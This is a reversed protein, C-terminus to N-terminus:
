RYLQVVPILEHVTTGVTNRQGSHWESSSSVSSELLSSRLGVQMSSRTANSSICRYAFVLQPLKPTYTSGENLFYSCSQDAKAELFWRGRPLVRHNHLSFLHVGWRASPSLFQTQLHLRLALLPFGLWRCKKSLSNKFYFSSHYWLAATGCPVQVELASCFRCAWGRQECWCCSQM